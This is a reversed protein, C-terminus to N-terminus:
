DKDPNRARFVATLVLNLVVALGLAVLLAVLPDSVASGGALGVVFAFASWLCAGVAAAICFRRLPYANAGAALTIPTPGGPVVRAVSILLFGHRQMVRQTWAVLRRGSRTRAAFAIVRAGYRGGLWYAILDSVFAGFTALALLPYARHDGEGAVVGVAIVATRAPLLPVVGDVLSLGFVVGFALPSTLELSRIDIM